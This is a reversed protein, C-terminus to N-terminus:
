YGREIKYQMLRAINAARMKAEDAKQGVFLEDVTQTFLRLWESFQKETMPTKQAMQIHINMPNSAYSHEDLLISSWFRYMKPLHADWDVQMIENFIPGIITNSQVKGYFTNVLLVIDDRHQIDRKMTSFSVLIISASVM